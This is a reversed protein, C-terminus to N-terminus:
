KCIFDVKLNVKGLFFEVKFGMGTIAVNNSHKTCTAHLGHTFNILKHADKPEKLDKGCIAERSIREARWRCVGNEISRGFCRLM